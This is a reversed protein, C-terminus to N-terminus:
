ERNDQEVQIVEYGKFSVNQGDEGTAIDIIEDEDFQQSVMQNKTIAIVMHKQPDRFMNNLKGKITQIIHNNESILCTAQVLVLL